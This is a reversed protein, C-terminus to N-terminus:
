QKEKQKNNTREREKIREGQLETMNKKNIREREVM